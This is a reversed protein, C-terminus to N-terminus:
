WLLQPLLTTARHYLLTPLPTVAPRSLPHTPPWLTPHNHSKNSSHTHPPPSQTTPLRIVPDYPSLHQTNPLASSTPKLLLEASVGSIVLITCGFTSTVTPSLTVCATVMIMTPIPSFSIFYPFHTQSYYRHSEEGWLFPFSLFPFLSKWYCCHHHLHFQDVM